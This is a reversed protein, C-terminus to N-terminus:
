LLYMQTLHPHMSTIEVNPLMYFRLTGIGDEMALYLGPTKYLVDGGGLFFGCVYSM